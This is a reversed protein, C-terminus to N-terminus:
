RQIDSIAFWLAFSVYRDCNQGGFNDSFLLSDRYSVITCEWEHFLFPLNMQARGITVKQGCIACAMLTKITIYIYLLEFNYEGWRKKLKAKRVSSKSCILLLNMMPYGRVIKTHKQKTSAKKEVSILM